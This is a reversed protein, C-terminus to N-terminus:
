DAPLQLVHRLDDAHIDELLPAQAGASLAYINKLSKKAFYRATEEDGGRAYAHAMFGWIQALRRTHEKQLNHEYIVGLAAQLHTLAMNFDSRLLELSGFHLLTTLEYFVHNSKRVLLLGKYLYKEASDLQDLSAHLLGLKSLTIGLEADKQKSDPATELSKKAMELYEKSQDFIGHYEYMVGFDRWVRGPGIKDGAAEYMKAAEDLAPLAQEIDNEIKYSVGVMHQMGAAKIADGAKEYLKRAITYKKVAEYGKGQNRLLTAEHEVEQPESGNKNAMM